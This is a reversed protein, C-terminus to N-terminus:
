GRRRPRRPAPPAPLAPVPPPNPQPRPRRRQQLQLAALRIIDAERRIADQEQRLRRAALQEQVNQAIQQRLIDMRALEDLPPVAPPRGFGFRLGHALHAPRMQMFGPHPHGPMHLQAPAAPAPPAVPLEVEIDEENIEPHLRRYEEQATQAAKAVEDAHRQDVSDWLPCKSSQGKRAAGQPTQDFHEYGKIVKRCVYCSLSRCKPCTMKNCGSEKVFNQGCKPCNRMLAKTMAEEVAHRVDLVKDEEMEKCSKPLHDEKKCERCSVIGCHVNECRFLREHENDIVVAYSCFPCTELGEIQALEIEHEQKIRHWLELSKQPLFRQVESEAFPLKCGSQDMCNLNTKRNGICEEASRRACDRCFLHADPCQVMWSFPFDGFCCGCEVGTGDRECQALEEEEAKRIEADELYQVLWRQEMLFDENEVLAKRKGRSTESRASTKKVAFKTGDELDGQLALYTPAYLTRNKFFMKKIYEKPIQPFDVRLLRDMALNLYSIEVPAKRDEALYDVKARKSSGQEHDSPDGKRKQTDSKPYDPSELLQSIIATGVDVEGDHSGYSLVLSRLHESEVNPIVSLVQQMIFDVPDVPTEPEQALGSGGAQPEPSGSYSNQSSGALRVAGFDNGRSDPYNRSSGAGDGLSVVDFAYGERTLDVRGNGTARGKGKARAPPTPFDPEPSSSIILINEDDM